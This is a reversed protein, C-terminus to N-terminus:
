VICHVNAYFLFYYYDGDAKRASHPMLYFINLFLFTHFFFICPSVRMEFNSPRLIYFDEKTVRFDAMPWMEGKTARVWPGADSHLSTAQWPVAAVFILIIALNWM